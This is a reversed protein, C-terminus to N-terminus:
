YVLGREPPLQAVVPTDAGGLPNVLCIVVLNSVHTKMNVQRVEEQGRAIVQMVEMLQRM